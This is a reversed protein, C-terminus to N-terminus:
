MYQYQTIGTSSILDDKTDANLTRANGLRSHRTLTTTHICPCYISKGINARDLFCLLYILACLPMIRKDIKRVLQPEVKRIAENEDRSQGTQVCILLLSSDCTVAKGAHTQRVDEEVNSREICDPLAEEKNNMYSM